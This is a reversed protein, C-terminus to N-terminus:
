IICGLFQKFTQATKLDSDTQTWCGFPLSTHIHLSGKDLTSKPFGLKHSSKGLALGAQSVSLCSDPISIMKALRDKPSMGSIPDHPWLDGPHCRTDTQNNLTWYPQTEHKESVYCDVCEM